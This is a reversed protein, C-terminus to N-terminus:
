LVAVPVPCKHHMVDLGFHWWLGSWWVWPLPLPWPWPWAWPCLGFGLGALGLALSRGRGRGGTLYSCALALLLAGSGPGPCPCTPLVPVSQWRCQCDTLWLTTSMPVSNPSESQGQTAPLSSKSENFWGTVTVSDLHSAFLPVVPRIHDVHSVADNSHAHQSHGEAELLYTM